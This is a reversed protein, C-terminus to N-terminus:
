QVHPQIADSCPAQMETSPEGLTVPFIQATVSMASLIQQQLPPLVLSYLHFTLFIPLFFLEMTGRLLFEFVGM